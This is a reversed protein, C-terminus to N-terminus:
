RKAISVHLRPGDWGRRRLADLARAVLNLGDVGACVVQDEPASVVELEDALSISEFVTVLEHRGDDRVPGLFLCLNVKGPALARLRVFRAEDGARPVGRALTARRARGGSPGDRRARRASARPCVSCRGAGARAIGSASQPPPRISRPGPRARRSEGARRSPPDG